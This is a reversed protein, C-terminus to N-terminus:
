PIRSARLRDYLLDDEEECITCAAPRLSPLWGIVVKLISVGEPLSPECRHEIVITILVRGLSCRECSRFCPRPKALENL